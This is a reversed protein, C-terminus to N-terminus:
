IIRLFNFIANGEFSTEQIDAYCLLLFKFLLRNFKM